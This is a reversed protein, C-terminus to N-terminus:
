AGALPKVFALVSKQNKVFASFASAMAIQAGETRAMSAGTGPWRGFCAFNRRLLVTIRGTNVQTIGSIERLNIGIRM